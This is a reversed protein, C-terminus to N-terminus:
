LNDRELQKCEYQLKELREQNYAIEKELSANEENNRRGILHQQRLQIVKIKEKNEKYKKVQYEAQMMRFAAFPNFFNSIVLSNVPDIEKINYTSMLVGENEETIIVDVSSELSKVIQKDAYTSILKALSSASANVNDKFAKTMKDHDNAESSFLFLLADGLSQSMIAYHNTARILVAQKSTLGSRIILSPFDSKILGIIEKGNDIVLPLRKAADTIFTRESNQINSLYAKELRKSESNKLTTLPGKSKVMEQTLTNLEELNDLSDELLKIVDTSQIKGVLKQIYGTINLKMALNTGAM